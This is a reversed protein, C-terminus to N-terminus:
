QAPVPWNEIGADLPVFAARDIRAIVTDWYAVSGGTHRVLDRFFLATLRAHFVDGGCEGFLNRPVQDPPTLYENPNELTDACEDRVGDWAQQLPIGCVETMFRVKLVPDLRYNGDPGLSLYRVGYRAHDRRAQREVAEIGTLAFGAMADYRGLAADVYKDM